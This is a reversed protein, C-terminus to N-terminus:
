GSSNVRGGEGEQELLRDTILEGAHEDVLAEHPLTLGLEEHVEEIPLEVDMHLVDISALPEDALQVADGIRFLLALDDAGLEDPHEFLLALPESREIVQGLARKVGIHDFASAGVNVGLRAFPNRHLDLAVVVHTTKGLIKLELKHLGQALQKLIFHALHTAAEAQGLLDHAAMRERPRTQGDADQTFDGVLLQIAQTIGVQNNALFDLFCPQIM